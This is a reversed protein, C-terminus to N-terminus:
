NYYGYEIGYSSLDEEDPYNDDHIFANYLQNNLDKIEKYYQLAVDYPIDFDKNMYQLTFSGLLDQFSEVIDRVKETNEKSLIHERSENLKSEELAEDIDNLNIEVISIDEGNQYYRSMNKADKIAEKETNYAYHKLFDKDKLYSHNFRHNDKIRTVDRAIPEFGIGKIYWSGKKVDDTDKTFVVKIGYVINNDSKSDNTKSNKLPVNSSDELDDNIFRALEDEEVENIIDFSLKKIYDNKKSNKSALIYNLASDIYEQISHSDYLLDLIGSDKAGYDRLDEEDIDSSISRLLERYKTKNVDKLMELAEYGLSSLSNGDDIFYILNTAIKFASNADKILEKVKKVDENYDEEVVKKDRKRDYAKKNPQVRTVPNTNGWTGRKKDNLEKQAKKSMKDQPVFKDEKLSEEIHKGRFNDDYGIDIYNGNVLKEISNIRYGMGDIGWPGDALFLNLAKDASYTVYEEEDYHTGGEPTYQKYSIKYSTINSERNDDGLNYGVNEASKRDPFRGVEKGDIFVFVIGNVVAWTQRPQRIEKENLEKWDEVLMSFYAGPNDDYKEVLKNDKM